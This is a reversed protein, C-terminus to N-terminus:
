AEFYCVMEIEEGVAKEWANEVDAEKQAKKIVQLRKEDLIYKLYKEQGHYIEQASGFAEMLNQKTKNGLGEVRDLWYLYKDM